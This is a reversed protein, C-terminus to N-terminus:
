LRNHRHSWDDARDAVKWECLGCRKRKCGVAVNGYGEIEGRRLDFTRRVYLNGEEASEWVTGAQGDVAEAVFPGYHGENWDANDNDNSNWNEPDTNAVTYTCSDWQGARLIDQADTTMYLGGDAYCGGWNQHVHYALVNESGDTKILAKQEDTLMYTETTNWGDTATFVKTGNIYWEAPGDDHGCALYVPCTALRQDPTTFTRVVYIDGFKNSKEM